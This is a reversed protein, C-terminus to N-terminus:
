RVNKLGRSECVYVRNPTLNNIITGAERSVASGNREPTAFFLTSKSEKMAIREYILELNDEAYKALAM